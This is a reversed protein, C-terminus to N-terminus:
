RRLRRATAREILLSGIILTGIALGQWAPSVGLLNLGNRIMVMIFVGILTGVVSGRGGSLSAGGIVVAAIADLELTSGMQPDATQLRAIALTAAVAALVGSLVYPLVAYLGVNLGAARAAERNSGVAYLTRGGKAFALYTWAAGCLVVLVIAHLPVGLPTMSLIAQLRDPIATISQQGSLLSALSRAIAMVGLTAVFAALGFVGVLVGSVLGFGAGTLVAAAIALPISLYQLGLGLVIGTLGVVGGVSLDIGGTLVVFTMGISVIGLVVSQDLMALVSVRTLFLPSLFSLVAALAFALLLKRLAVRRALDLGRTSRFLGSLDTRASTNLTPDKASM